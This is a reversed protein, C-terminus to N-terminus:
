GKGLFWDAAEQGIIDAKDTDSVNRSKIKKRNDLKKRTADPMPKRAKQKIKTTVKDAAQSGKSQLAEYQSAAWLVRVHRPDIISSVEQENFGQNLAFERLEKQKDPTWDPITQKLIEAGQNLLETYAQEQTKQFEGYKAELQAKLDKAQEKLGDAEIKKRFMDESTMSSLNQQMDNEIQKVQAQLYGLNNIEPQIEAIFQNEAQQVTLQKQTLEVEKKYDSLSQTKKTYDAQMLYGDKLEEPVEYKKGDIEIEVFKLESDGSEDEDTGEDADQDSGSDSDAEAGADLEDDTEDVEPAAEAPAEDNYEPTDQADLLSNAFDGAEQDPTKATHEVDAM